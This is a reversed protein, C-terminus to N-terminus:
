WQMLEQLNTLHKYLYVILLNALAFHQLLTFSNKLVRNITESSEERLHIQMLMKINMKTASGNQYKLCFRSLPDISSIVVIAFM